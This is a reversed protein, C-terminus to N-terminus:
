KWNQPVWRLIAGTPFWKLPPCMGDAPLTPAYPMRGWLHGTLPLDMVLSKRDPAGTGQQYTSPRICNAGVRVASLPAWADPAGTPFWKSFRPCGDAEAAYEPPPSKMDIAEASFYNTFEPFLGAGTPFWKALRPYGDARMPFWKVFRRHVTAEM